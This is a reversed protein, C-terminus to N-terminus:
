TMGFGTAGTSFRGITAQIASSSAAWPKLCTTVL